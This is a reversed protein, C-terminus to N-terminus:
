FCGMCTTSASRKAQRAASFSPYLLLSLVSSLSLAVSSILNPVTLNQLPPPSVVRLTFSSSAILTEVVEM